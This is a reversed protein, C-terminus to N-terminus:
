LGDEPSLVSGPRAPSPRDRVPGTPCSWGDPQPPRGINRLHRSGSSRMVCRGPSEIIQLFYRHEHLNKKNIQVRSLIRKHTSTFYHQVAACTPSINSGKKSNKFIKEAPTAKRM